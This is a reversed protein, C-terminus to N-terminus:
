WFHSPPATYFVARILTWYQDLQLDPTCGRLADSKKGEKAVKDMQPRCTYGAKSGHICGLMTIPVRSRTLGGELTKGHPMHIFIAMGLVALDYRDIWCLRATIVEQYLAPEM